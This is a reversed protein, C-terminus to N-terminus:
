SQFACPRVLLSYNYWSSLVPKAVSLVLVCHDLGRFFITIQCSSNAEFALFYNSPAHLSVPTLFFTLFRQLSEADEGLIHQKPLQVIVEFGFILIKSFNEEHLIGRSSFTFCLWNNGGSFWVTIMHHSKKMSIDGTTPIAWIPALLKFFRMM